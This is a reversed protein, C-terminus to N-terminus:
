VESKNFLYSGVSITFLCIGLIVLLDIHPPLVNNVGTLSGRLGDVMYFLPNLFSLQAAWRPIEPNSAIPFFVSSLFLLPMILLNMIIQFGQFDEIRSALILGFGVASFAILVMLVLTFLVGLIGTIPVGMALAICLIFFGQILATTAGGLTRGIIISIRSIPAVLVEQLFGFQKDWLVSIGTFMSSFLIAMTIIGPALFYLYDGSVGPMDASRFGFGLIFLFFLPQVITAVIRSKSRIFRKMQRLWMVYIAQIERSEM